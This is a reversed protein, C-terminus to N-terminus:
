LDLRLRAYYYGGQWPVVTTSAFVRGCCYDNGNVSRDIEDPFEDTINRGGVTLGLSDTFQYSGEVDLFWTSSFNQVALPTENDSDGYAGFYSARLLLSLDGIAHVATFMGRWNPERNEFDYQDEPNLFDDANSALESENYNMSLTFTTAQGNEWAVPYTAVLDVGQTKSDFANQFYFVGGISEAGVVGAEVLSLYNDYADGADPDASVDLTSISYLRDDIDIRYFDLTMTLDGFEATAGITYNTSTEATLAEAGLAQAVPSGAPFLGTAVPFGNPLRTSVNTTGQQGPTPARFGTGVSARLAFNETFRYMGALKWVTEDGFDSYDEFRVAGQLFLADTVDGSMDLYVAYSDRQYTESFGPAYGPFGNSGVGVVQYVPDDPDACDLTSGSAIVDDGVPTTAGGDACFGFPDSTAFPGAEYSSQEGQVVEYKEDMYSFGVAAVLPGAMGVDFEHSFDAQFQTEANSLDGPRFSTPSDPGLSPNITNFLTYEIENYGYRLSVDYMTGSGFEGRLGGLISYDTIDGVFRPTFGGPFKELPNYISGDELRLDEVTGNGPYRYFFSGDGEYTSYNGFSYLEM